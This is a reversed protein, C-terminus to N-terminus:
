HTMTVVDVANLPASTELIECEISNGSQSKKSVFSGDVYRFIRIKSILLLASIFTCLINKIGAVFFTILFVQYHREFHIQRTTTTSTRMAAGSLLRHVSFFKNVLFVWLGCECGVSVSVCSNSYEFSINMKAASGDSRNAGKAM